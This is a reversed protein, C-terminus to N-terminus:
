SATFVCLKYDGQDTILPGASRSHSLAWTPFEIAAGRCAAMFCGNTSCTDIGRSTPGGAAAGMILIGVAVM